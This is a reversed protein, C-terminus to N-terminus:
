FRGEFLMAGGGELAVPTAGFANSVTRKEQKSDVIWLVVGTIIAAAGLGLQIDTAISLNKSSQVDGSACDPSCTVEL